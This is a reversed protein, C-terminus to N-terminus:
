RASSESLMLAMHQALQSSGGKMSLVVVKDKQHCQWSFEDVTMRCAKLLEKWAMDSM